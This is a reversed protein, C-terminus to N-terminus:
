GKVVIMPDLRAVEGELGAAEARLGFASAADIDAEHAVHQGMVNSLLM